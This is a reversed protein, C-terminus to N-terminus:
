SEEPPRTLEVSMREIRPLWGGYDVVNWHHVSQAVFSTGDVAIGPARVKIDVTWRDPGNAGLEIGQVLHNDRKVLHSFGAFWDRVEEITTLTRKEAALVIQFGTPALLDLLPAADGRNADWVSMWLHVLATVRNRAAELAPDITESM